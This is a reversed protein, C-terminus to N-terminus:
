NVRKTYLCDYMYKFLTQIVERDKKNNEDNFYYFYGKLIPGGLELRLYSDKKLLSEIQNDALGCSRFHDIIKWAFSMMEQKISFYNKRREIETRPEKYRNVTQKAKNQIKLFIDDKKIKLEIAQHRHTLEHSIRGICELVFNYYEVTDKSNVIELIKSSCFVNIILTPSNFGGLTTYNDDNSNAFYFEIKWNFFLNNFFLKADNLDKVQRFFDDKAEIFISKINELEKKINVVAEIFYYESSFLMGSADKEAMLILDDLNNFNDTRIKKEFFSNYRETM